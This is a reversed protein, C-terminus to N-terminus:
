EKFRFGAVLGKHDSGPLETADLSTPEIQSSHMIHDIPILPVVFDMPYTPIFGNKVLRLNSTELFRKFEPDWSVINLDGFVITPKDLILSEAILKLQANREATKNPFAPAQTHFTIVQVVIGNINILASIYPVGDFHLLKADHLPFKSYLGIGYCCNTWPKEIKYPYTESLETNIFKLWEANLEQIAIVDAEVSKIAKISAEANPNNHYVNFQGLTFDPNSNHNLPTITPIVLLLNLLLSAASLGGLIYSKCTASVILLLLALLATFHAFAGLLELLNLGFSFWHSLSISLIGVGFVIQLKFLKM